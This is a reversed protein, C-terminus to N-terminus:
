DDSSRLSEFRELRLRADHSVRGHEGKEAEIVELSSRLLPEAEDERDLDLLCAGLVSEAEATRWHARGLLGRLMAAARRATDEAEAPRGAAQLWIAQNKLAIAISRHPEDYAQRLIRLADDYLAGAEPLEERLRLLDALNGQIFAVVPEGAGSLEVRTEFSARFLAEAEPWAAGRRDVELAGWDRLLVALNNQVRAVAVSGPGYVELRIDYSKRYDAEAEAFRGLQTLLDARNSLVIAVSANRGYLRELVGVSADYVGVATKLDGRREVFVALENLMQGLRKGDVDGTDAIGKAEAQVALADQEDGQARRAAALRFLGLVLEGDLADTRRLERSETLWGAAEEYAGLGYYAWGVAEMLGPLDEPLQERIRDKQEPPLEEMLKARELLPVGDDLLQRAEIGAAAKAGDEVQFLRVIYDAVFFAQEQEERAEREREWMWAMALGFGILMLIMLSSMVVGFTHRRVFKWARYGFTAERARVPLDELHRRLDDSLQQASSYRQGPRKRLAKMVIADLDGSLRRELSKVDRASADAGATGEGSGTLGYKAVSSSPKEPDTECIARSLKLFSGSEDPFPHQGALLEYLIVGLSYVDSLISPDHGNHIQEPSAYRLTGLFAHTTKRRLAEGDISYPSPQVFGAIGFDLLKPEGQETVLINAPKLDRHVLRNQQAFHVISCVKRFLRLREVTPLENQECFRDIPVGQVYDMVLFPLGDSTWGRELPRVVAPHDLNALIEQERQFRAVDEDQTRDPKLVKVAVEHGFDLHRALYVTGMGGRGVVRVIEASGLTEGERLDRHEGRPLRLLPEEFFETAVDKLALLADVERRLAIDGGCAQDLFAPREPEARLLSQDLVRLAERQLELAM